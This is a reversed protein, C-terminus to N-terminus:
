NGESLVEALTKGAVERLFKRDAASVGSSDENEPDDAIQAPDEGTITGCLMAAALYAGAASAHNGDLAYLELEPRDELAIEFARGIRVVSSESQAAIEHYVNEFREREDFGKRAWEAFLLVEAGNETATAALEIAPDLPYERTGSMSIQQGQLVVYTWEHDRMMDHNSKNENIQPLLIDLSSHTVVKEDPKAARLLGQLMSPVNHTGTHSNGFMLVSIDAEAVEDWLSETAAAARAQSDRIAAQNNVATETRDAPGCGASIVGLGVIVFPVLHSRKM